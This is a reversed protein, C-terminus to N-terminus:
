YVPSLLRLKSVVEPLVELVYRVDRENNIRGFSFRLSGEALHPSVGMATLVHSPDLTGSTCASGTSVAIGKTDLALLLAEGSVAQFSMNLINPLRKEPHGNVTVHDIKEKIGNELMDRLSIMKQATDGLERNALEIAKALGVIGPVNETGARHNMEHHGGLMMPTIKIGKRLYLAGIGKPGFIKHGSISLVDVNLDDVNIPIKGVAQVADTHFPIGKEKTIKGIEKIPQITGVENNAFMISVLITDKRINRKVSEPNVLGYKDVALYTVYYGEKGLYDCCKLIAHHEISSTIIHKGKERYAHAIGNIALNDDETGGSTFLIEEAHAGIADAVIRRASELARKAKQGFSHISSANGFIDSFYPLMADVVEKRVPTTASNDLYVQKM